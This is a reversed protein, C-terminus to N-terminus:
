HATFIPIFLSVDSKNYTVFLQLLLVRLVQSLQSSSFTSLLFFIRFLFKTLVSFQLM